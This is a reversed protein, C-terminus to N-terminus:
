LCRKAPECQALLDPRRRGDGLVKLLQRHRRSENRSIEAVAHRPYIIPPIRCERKFQVVDGAVDTRIRSISAPPGAPRDPDHLPFIGAATLANPALVRVDADVIVAALKQWHRLHATLSLSTSSSKARPQEEYVAGGEYCDMGTILIPSCGFAWALYIAMMGSQHARAEYIRIEGFRRTSAIPVPYPRLKHEIMDLCLAYRCQWHELGHANASIYIASDQTPARSIGATRTPGGGIIVAPTGAHHLIFRSLPWQLGDRRLAEPDPREAPDPAQGAM